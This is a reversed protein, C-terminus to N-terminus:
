NFFPEFGPLVTQRVFDLIEQLVVEVDRNRLTPEDQFAVFVSGEFNVNMDDPIRDFPERLVTAGDEMGACVVNVHVGWPAHFDVTDAIATTLNLTRHKDIEALESLIWLPHLNCLPEGSRYPQLGDILAVGQPSVGKLRKFSDLQERFREITKSIPFANKREKPVAGNALILQWVLHDLASRVNYLFDGIIVSPGLGPKPLRIVAARFRPNPDDKAVVRLDGYRSAQLAEAIAGLHKEARSLKERFGDLAHAM